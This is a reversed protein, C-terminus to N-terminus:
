LCCHLRPVVEVSNSGSPAVRTEVLQDTEDVELLVLTGDARHLVIPPNARDM